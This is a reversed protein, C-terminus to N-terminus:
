VHKLYERFVAKNIVVLNPENNSEKAKKYTNKLMAFFPSEQFWFDEILKPYIENKSILNIQSIAEINKPVIIDPFSYAVAGGVTAMGLLELFRRRNM